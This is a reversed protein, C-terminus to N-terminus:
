TEVHSIVDHFGIQFYLPCTHILYRKIQVILSIQLYVICINLFLFDKKLLQTNFHPLDENLNSLVPAHTTQTLEQNSQLPIDSSTSRYILNFSPIKKIMHYLKCLLTITSMFVFDSVRKGADIGEKCTRFIENMKM